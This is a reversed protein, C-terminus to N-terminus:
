QKSKGLRIYNCVQLNFVVKETPKGDRLAKLALLVQKKGETEEKEKKGFSFLPFNEM